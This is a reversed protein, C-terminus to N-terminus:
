RVPRLRRQRCFLDACVWLMGRPASAHHRSQAGLNRAQLLLPRASRGRKWCGGRSPRRPEVSIGGFRRRVHMRKVGGRSSSCSNEACTQRAAPEQMCTMLPTTQLGVDTRATCTRLDRWRDPRSASEFENRGHTKAADLVLGATLAQASCTGEQQRAHSSQVTSPPKWGHSAARCDRVCVHQAGADAHLNLAPPAALAPEAGPTPV